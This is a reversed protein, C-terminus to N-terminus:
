QPSAPKAQKPIVVILGNYDTWPHFLASNKEECMNDGGNYCGLAGTNLDVCEGNCWGWNDLVQVRPKYVCVEDTLLLGRKELIKQTETTLAKNSWDRFKTNQLTKNALLTNITTQSWGIQQRLSKPCTYSHVFEFYNDHCARPANGFRPNNKDDKNCTYGEGVPCDKDDMCTLQTTDGPKACVGLGDASGDNTDCYPKRNKYRGYTNPNTLDGDDWNIMVRKIPMRNHDAFAFFSMVSSLTKNAIIAKEAGIAQPDEDSGFKGNYDKKTANRQNITVNDAEGVGCNENPEEFCTHPNTSYIQPVILDKGITRSMDEPPGVLEKKHDAKKIEDSDKWKEINDGNWGSLGGNRQVVRLSKAFLSHLLENGQKFISPANENSHTVVFESLFKPTAYETLGNCLQLGAGRFLFGSMLADMCAIPYGDEQSNAYRYSSMYAFDSLSGLEGKQSDDKIKAMGHPRLPLSPDLRRNGIMIGDKIKVAYKWVRDTWAKNDTQKPTKTKSSDHVQVFDTCMDYLEAIVTMNIGNEENGKDLAGIGPVPTSFNSQNCMRSTYGLFEGDENFDMAIAFWNNPGYNDDDDSNDGGMSSSPIVRRKDCRMDYHGHYGKEPHDYYTLSDGDGEFPDSLYKGNSDKKNIWALQNHPGEEHNYWYIINYRRSIYNRDGPKQAKKAAEEFQPGFTDQSGSVTIKSYHKKNLEKMDADYPSDDVNKEGYEDTQVYVLARGKTNDVSSSEPSLYLLSVDGYTYTGGQGEKDTPFTPVPRNEVAYKNDKIAQELNAFDIYLEKNLLLPQNGQAGGTYMTPVFYVKKLHALNLSKEYDSRFVSQKKGFIKGSIPASAFIRGPYNGIGSVKVQGTFSNCGYDLEYYNEDRHYVEMSQSNTFYAAGVNEKGEELNWLRPPHRMILKGETGGAQYDTNSICNDKTKFSMGSWRDIPLLSNPVVVSGGSNSVYPLSTIDEMETRLIVTNKKNLGRKGEFLDEQSWVLMAGYLTTDKHGCSASAFGITKINKGKTDTNCNYQGAVGCEQQKNFSQNGNCLPNGELSFYNQHTPKENKGLAKKEYQGDGVNTSRRCYAVGPTAKNDLVEADVSPTYGAEPHFNDNDIGSPSVDIPLWTLCAYDQEKNKENYGNIPRSLDYELCYGTLGLHSEEVLKKGCTGSQQVIEGKSDKVTVACDNDNVCPDGELNGPGTCVGSPIVKTNFPWYDVTQVGSYEAKIYACSCDTEGQCVNALSFSSEKSIFSERTLGKATHKKSPTSKLVSQPFPSSREPFAKCMNRQELIKVANEQGVKKVGVGAPDPTVNSSFSGGILHICEGEYCRGEQKLGCSTWNPKSGADGKDCGIKQAEEKTFSDRDQKYVLYSKDEISIHDYHTVPYKNLLSYGTYDEGYWSSDREVYLKESLLERNEEPDVWNTCVGNESEDCAKFEYCFNQAKGESNIKTISTKCSLWESCMRDRKVKLLLNTDNNGDVSKQIDVPGFGSVESKKYTSKSDYSKKPEETRDFLICGEKLSVQGGCESTGSKQVSDNFIVYYPKGEAGESTDAPDVLETCQDYNSPCQGVFGDYQGVSKNSWIGYEGKKNIYKEYCPIDGELDVRYWGAIINGDKEVRPRYECLKNSTKQPDKFYTTANGVGYTSCGVGEEDCLISANDVEYADPNNRVFVETNYSYDLSNDQQVKSEELAVRECGQDRSDCSFENRNTLYIPTESDEPIIISSDVVAANKLIDLDAVTNLAIHDILCSKEGAPIECIGNQIEQGNLEVTCLETGKVLENGVSCGLKYIHAKESEEIDATNNSDYLPQCGIAEERCLKEFGTAYATSQNGKQDFFSYGRCGLAQGPFPDDPKDDCVLPVELEKGDATTTKWSDKVVYYTDSVRSLKVNDLFLTNNAGFSTINFVIKPNVVKNTVQVPGFRYQKWDNSISAPTNQGTAVNHTFILPSNLTDGDLSVVLNLTAGRAWFSIEYFEDEDKPDIADKTDGELVRTLTKADM